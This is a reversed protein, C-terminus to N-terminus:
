MRGSGVVVHLLLAFASLAVFHTFRSLNEGSAFISDDTTTPMSTPCYFDRDFDTGSSTFTAFGPEIGTITDSIWKEYQSVRAYVGPKKPLACRDGFSVVGGQVWAFGNYIVLPGGSDGQCSDKGGEDLGACIMNETITSIEQNYCSCKKNGIIPVEVEQLIDPTMGNGLDGFGTVWSTTGEHFTSEGSALCVPQIYDTFNVPASLKLLCMDNEYTSPNYEPYCISQEIGRTVENPNPNSLKHVGLHVESNLINDSICHAATLVWKNTILSGGCFHFGKNQLSAQWPWRGPVADQGGVIRTKAFVKGCEQLTPSESPLQSHCGNSILIILVLYGSLKQLAM